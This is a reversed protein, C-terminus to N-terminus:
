CKKVMQPHMSKNPEELALTQSNKKTMLISFYKAELIGEPLKLLAFKGGPLRTEPRESEVKVHKDEDISFIIEDHCTLYSLIKQENDTYFEDKHDLFYRIIEARKGAEAYNEKLKEEAIKESKSWQLPGISWSPFTMMVYKELHKLREELSEQSVEM